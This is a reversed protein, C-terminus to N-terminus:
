FQDTKAKTIQPRFKLGLIYIEASKSRSASPKVFKVVGFSKRVEKVFDNLLDGQFTKVLFNGAPRLIMRVIRLSVEALEIQRAHDVEWIGSINPSIDSLVANAKRPLKELINLDEINRIDGVISEVNPFPFPKIEKIDIGLIYGKEGVIPRAAQMWGGPFAGLDVVVDGDKLLQYKQSIQLLKYAARSRYGEEKALRHYYDRERERLWKRTM